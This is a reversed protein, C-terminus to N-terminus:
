SQLKETFRPPAVILTTFINDNEFDLVSSLLERSCDIKQRAIRINLSSIYRINIVKNNEMVCSGTIGIRHGGRVTIFGQCIQNTYSYISNECIKQFLEIIDEQSIVYDLIKIRDGIKLCIPRNVRIRIEEINETNINDERLFESIYKRIRIHFYKQIQELEKLKVSEKKGTQVM